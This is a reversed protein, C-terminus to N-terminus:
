KKRRRAKPEVHYTQVGPYDPASYVEISQVPGACFVDRKTVKAVAEVASLGLDMAMLAADAGCGVAAVTDMLPTAPFEDELTWLTGDPRAILICAGDVSPLDGKSRALVAGGFPDGGDALWKLCTYAPVWQGCGGAVGGDPLRVLKQVRQQANFGTLMTDAAMIGAKFAIVTM